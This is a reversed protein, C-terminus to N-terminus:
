IKMQSDIPYSVVKNTLTSNVKSSNCVKGSRDEECIKLFQSPLKGGSERDKEPIIFLPM